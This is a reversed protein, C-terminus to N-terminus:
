KNWYPVNKTYGKTNRLHDHLDRDPVDQYFGSHRELWAEGRPTLLYIEYYSSADHNHTDVKLTHGEYYIEFDDENSIIKDITARLGNIVASGAFRGNWRGVNARVLFMGRVNATEEVFDDWYMEDDTWVDFISTQYLFRKTKDM